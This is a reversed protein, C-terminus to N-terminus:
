PTVPSKRKFINMGGKITAVLLGFEAIGAASALATKVIGEPTTVGATAAEMQAEAVSSLGSRVWGGGVGGKGGFSNFIGHWFQM